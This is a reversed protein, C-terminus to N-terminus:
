IFHRWSSLHQRRASAVPLGSAFLGCPRPLCAALRPLSARRVAAPLGSLEGVRADGADETVLHVPAPASQSVSPTENPHISRVFGVAGHDDDYISYYRRLFTNGLVWKNSPVDMIGLGPDCRHRIEPATAGVKGLVPFGDLMDTPQPEPSEEWSELTYEKPTLPYSVVQGQADTLQVAIEPLRGLNSCDEKTRVQSLLQKVEKEPGTILSSGTDVVAPCVGGPRGDCIHLPKGDVTIDKMAVEWERPNTIPHWHIHEGPAMRSHEAGGFTILGNRHADDSLYVGLMLRKLAGSKRLQHLVSGKNVSPALGMIGDFPLINFPYTTQRTSAGIPQNPVRLEASPDGHCGTNHARDCFSLTDSGPAFEVHGTGYQISASPGGTPQFSKSSATDFQNRELCVKDKCQAGPVWLASSGTDFVATFRQKPNGLTFDGYYQSNNNNLLDVHLEGNSLSGPDGSLSRLAAQADALTSNVAACDSAPAVSAVDNALTGAHVADSAIRDLATRLYGM